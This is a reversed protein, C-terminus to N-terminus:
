LPVGFLAHAELVELGKNFLTASDITIKPGMSWNPHALAQAPTVADLDAPGERFPGGSGTLVLSAVSGPDEGALCQHLASHESDTPIITGGEALLARVLPAAVVLAEKSALAVARGARLAARTSRLAAIGPIA